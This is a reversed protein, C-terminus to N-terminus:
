SCLKPLSKTISKVFLAMISM